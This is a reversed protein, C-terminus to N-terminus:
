VENSENEKFYNKINEVDNRNIGAVALLEQEEAEKIASIKHFFAVLAAAKKKGIGPIKTLVSETMQKKRLNRHHTIAFRHAEDRIRVIFKLALSNRPLIVSESKGPLFVGEERKALSIFCVDSHGTEEAAKMASSLQGKGGDIIILDPKASFSLDDCNGIKELRRTLAEHMSAFDNNGPIRIKFHRYHRSDKEGDTFVVMSAVKNTGSIHSIDYCEARRPLVPLSLLKQLQEVAGKTLEQYRNFKEMQTSLYETANTEGMEVLQKRIGGSPTNIVIKRGAKQGIYDALEEKFELEKGTIIENCLIHNKGYYQMIFSALGNANDVDYYPYNNGGLFKGGRVSFCNVVSYLGNSVMTFVDINLDQKFPITQKRVLKELIGLVDRYHKALEFEEKEAFLLMKKRLIDEVFKYDGELFRIVDSVDKAYEEGTVKGSCPASCLGIHYDLCEKKPMNKCHRLPFVTRIVELLDYVSIGLMYPGFYKAGDSRLRYSVEVRPFKDKVNIRIYPYTKDDKLLINYPPNHQKILNNELILAEYENPTIIYRFDAIKEVLAMTKESKLNNHFYQRVRNKLIKAKGVYLINEYEDLMIYVGSKEPLTALKDTIVSM